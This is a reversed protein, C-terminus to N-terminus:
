ARARAAYRAAWDQTTGAARKLGELCEAVALFGQNKRQGCTYYAGAGGVGDVGEAYRRAATNADVVM